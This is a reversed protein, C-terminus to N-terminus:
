VLSHPQSVTRQPPPLSFPSLAAGLLGLTVEPWARGWRPGVSRGSGPPCPSHGDHQVGARGCSRTHGRARVEGSRPPRTAEVLHLGPGRKSWGCSHVAITTAATRPDVWPGCCPFAECLLAPFPCKLIIKASGDGRAEGRRPDASGSPPSIQDGPRAGGTQRRERGGEKRGEKKRVSLREVEGLWSGGTSPPCPGSPVREGQGTHPSTLSVGPEGWSRM